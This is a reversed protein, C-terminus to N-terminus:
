HVFNNVWYNTDSLSGGNKTLDDSAKNRIKSSATLTEKLSSWAAKTSSRLCPSYLVSFIRMAITITIRHRTQIRSAMPPERSDMTRHMILPMLLCSAVATRRWIMTIGQQQKSVVMATPFKNVAQMQRWKTRAIITGWLM